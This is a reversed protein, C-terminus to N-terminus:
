AETEAEVEAKAPEEVFEEILKTINAYVEDQKDHIKIQKDLGLDKVTITDGLNKESADIHIVEPILDIKGLVDVDSKHVQLQLQRTKLGEEGKFIIPIQVKVEHDKSVLQVDLHIIKNTVPHRQIEKIFGFKKEDGCKVWLKVNSGHKALIKKLAIEEFKVSDAEVVTDGYIVGPIFGEERFKKAKKTREAANLIIQEM